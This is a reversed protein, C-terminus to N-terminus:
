QLHPNAVAFVDAAEPYIAIHNKLWPAAMEGIELIATANMSLLDQYTQRATDIEQQDFGNTPEVNAWYAASAKLEKRKRCLCNIIEAASADSITIV